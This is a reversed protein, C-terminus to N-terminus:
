RAPAPQAPTLAPAQTTAPAPAIGSGTTTPAPRNVATSTENSTGGFAFFLGLVVVLALIGGVIWGTYNTEDTMPYSPRKPYDPDGMNSM